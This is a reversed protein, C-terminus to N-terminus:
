VGARMVCALCCQSVVVMVLESSQIGDKLLTKFPIDENVERSHYYYLMKDPFKLITIKHNFLLGKYKFSWVPVPSFVMNVIEGPQEKM